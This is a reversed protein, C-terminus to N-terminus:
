FIYIQLIQSCNLLHFNLVALYNDTKEEYDISFRFKLSKENQILVKKRIKPLCNETQLGM